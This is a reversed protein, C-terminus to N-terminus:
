KRWKKIDKSTNFKCIFCHLKSLKPHISQRGSKILANSQRQSYENLSKDIDSCSKTIHTSTAAHGCLAHFKLKENASLCYEKCIEDRVSEQEICMKRMLKSIVDCTEIATM